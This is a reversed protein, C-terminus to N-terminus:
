PNNKRIHDNVKKKVKNLVKIVEQLEPPYQRITNKLMMDARTVIQLNDIEFNQKNGDVFSVYQNTELEIKHHTEYIHRHKLVWNNCSLRLETYGERSVREIGNHKTNHSNVGKKFQTQLAKGTILNRDVMALNELKFNTKDGNLFIIKKDSPIEGNAKKWILRHKGEWKIQGNPWYENTKVIIYGQMDTREAGIPKKM